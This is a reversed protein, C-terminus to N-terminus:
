ISIYPRKINKNNPKKIDMIGLCFGVTLMMTILVTLIIDWLHSRRPPEPYYSQSYSPQRQPTYIKAMTLEKRM